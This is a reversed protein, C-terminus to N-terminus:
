RTCTSLRMHGCYIKMDGYKDLKINFHKNIPILINLGDETDVSIKKRGKNKISLYTTGSMYLLEVDLDIGLYETTFKIDRHDYTVILKEFGSHLKKIFLELLRMKSYM